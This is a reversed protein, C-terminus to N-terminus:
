FKVKELKKKLELRFFFIKKGILLSNLYIYLILIFYFLIFYYFSIDFIFKVASRNSASVVQKLKEIVKSQAEAQTKLKNIELTKLKTENELIEESKKVKM